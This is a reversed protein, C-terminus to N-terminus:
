NIEKHEGRNPSSQWKSYYKEPPNTCGGLLDGNPLVIHQAESTEIASSKPFVIPFLMSPQFIFNFTPLHFAKEFHDIKMTHCENIKLPTYDGLFSVHCHFIVLKLLLNM